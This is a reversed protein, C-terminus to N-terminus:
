KFRNSSYPHRFTYDATDTSSFPRINISDSNNSTKDNSVSESNNSTKGYSGVNDGTSSKMSSDRTSSLRPTDSKYTSISITTSGNSSTAFGADDMSEEEEMEDHLKEIKGCESDDDDCIDDNSDDDEDEDEDDDDNSSNSHSSNHSNETSMKFSSESKESSLNFSTESEIEDYNESNNRLNFDHGGFLNIINPKREEEAKNAEISNLMHEKIQDLESISDPSMQSYNPIIDSQNENLIEDINGGDQIRPLINNIDYQSYRDKLENHTSSESLVLGQGEQGKNDANNWQLSEISTNDVTGSNIFIRRINNEIEANTYHKRQKYSDNAVTSSSAGM